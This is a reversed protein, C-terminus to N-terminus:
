HASRSHSCCNTFNASLLTIHPKKAFKSKVQKTHEKQAASPQAARTKNGNRRRSYKNGHYHKAIIITVYKPSGSM